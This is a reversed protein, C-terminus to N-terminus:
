LVLVFFLSIKDNMSLFLLLIIKFIILYKKIIYIYSFM